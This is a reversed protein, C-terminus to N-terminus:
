AACPRKYPLTWRSCPPSRCGCGARCSPLCPSGDPVKFISSCFETGRFLRHLGNLVRLVRRVPVLLQCAGRLGDPLHGGGRCGGAWHGAAPHPFVRVRHRQGCQAAAGPQLRLNGGAAAVSPHGGKKRLELHTEFVTQGYASGIRGCPRLGENKGPSGVLRWPPAAGHSM